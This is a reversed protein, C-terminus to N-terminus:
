SCPVPTAVNSAIGTEPLDSLSCSEDNGWRIILKTGTKLGQLYVQGKEGVIAVERRSTQDQVSAGFPISKGSTPTAMIFANYGQGVAFNVYGVSGETLALRQVPNVVDVDLPLGNMNVRAEYAEFAPVGGIVAYGDSDSQSLSDFGVNAVGDTSVLLRTSGNFGNVHSSVGHSTALLSSSISAQASNYTSGDTAISANARYKSTDKGFYASVYQSDAGAGGSLQYNYDDARHSYGAKTFTKGSDSHQVSSSLTSRRDLPITVGIHFQKEDGLASQNQYASVFASIGQTNGLSFNRSLNLGLRRSTPADWYTSHDYSFNASLWPFRKSLMVSYRQKGANASYYTPDGAFQSFNTFTKESFRYGLFRLDTDVSDFYKSYNIRYSNGVLTENDWYLTAQSNTVDVSLAGLPGLDKGIGLAGSLYDEAALVGGYVGMGWPLGYTLEASIFNPEIGGTLRPKGAAAKYRLEGSRALFPVATTTVTFKQESGDEEKVTVDLTGRLSTSLNQLSFAGASVTTSYLVQGYQSITVTANTRALGSIVPAYGRLSLPMMSEDSGLTVGTLAFSDFIDSSLYDEGIVLKSHIAPLARYAYVRNIDFNDGTSSSNSAEYQAQYDARVRWADFNLGATGYSRLTTSESNYDSQTTRLHDAFIQYDLIASTIGNSWGSPPIYYPDNYELSIQPLNISLHAADARYTVSANDITNLDICKGNNLTSLTSLIEPKLGFQEVLNLPLCAYSDQEDSPSVFEISQNGFSRNNVSIDLLYLGPRVYSARSFQSLDVNENGDLELFESNFEVALSYSSCCSALIYCAIIKCHKV